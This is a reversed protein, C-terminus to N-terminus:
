KATQARDPDRIAFSLVIRWIGGSIMSVGVYVGILLFSDSPWGMAILVGVLISLIGSALVWGWGSAPRRQFALSLEAVGIAFILAALMLAIAAVGQIPYILLLVGVVLNLLGTAVQWGAGSKNRTQYAHILQLVGILLAIWALAYNAALATVVPVALAVIGLILILVGLALSWNAASKVDNEIITEM